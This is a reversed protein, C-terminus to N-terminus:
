THVVSHYAQDALVLMAEGSEITKLGVGTIASFGNRAGWIGGAMAGITDVDGGGQRIAAIMDLFSKDRFYM